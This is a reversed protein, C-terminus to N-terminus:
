LCPRPPPPQCKYIEVCVDGVCISASAPLPSWVALLAAAALMAVVRRLRLM